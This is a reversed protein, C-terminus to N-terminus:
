AAYANALPDINALRVRRQRERADAAEAREIRAATRIGAVIAEAAERTTCRFWENRHHKAELLKHAHHEAHSAYGIPVSRRFRVAVPFPNDTTMHRARKDPDRAIGVKVFGECEMVYIFITADTVPAGM